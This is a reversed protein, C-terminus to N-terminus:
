TPATDGNSFLILLVTFIKINEFFDISYTQKSEEIKTYHKHKIQKIFWGVMDIRLVIVLYNEQSQLNPVDFRYLLIPNLKISM